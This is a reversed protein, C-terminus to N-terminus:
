VCRIQLQTVDSHNVAVPPIAAACTRDSLANSKSKRWAPHYVAVPPIAAACTRHSFVGEKCKRGIRIDIVAIPPMAAACTRDSLAVSKSKRWAPHYVAVPPIAAACTRDGFADAKSKGLTRQNSFRAVAAHSFCACGICRRKNCNKVAGASMCTRVGRMYAFAAAQM